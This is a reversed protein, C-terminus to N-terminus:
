IAWAVPVTVPGRFAWGHFRTEGAPRLGPLRAFLM